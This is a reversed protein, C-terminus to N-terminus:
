RGGEAAPRLPHHEGADHGTCRGRCQGTADYVYRALNAEEAGLRRTHADDAEDEVSRRTPTSTDTTSM